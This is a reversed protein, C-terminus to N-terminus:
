SSSSTSSYDLHVDLPGYVSRLLDLVKEQIIDVQESPCYDDLSSRYLFFFFVFFLSAVSIVVLTYELLASAEKLSHCTKGGAIGKLCLTISRIM